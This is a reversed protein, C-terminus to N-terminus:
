SATEMDDDYFAWRPLSLPQIAHNTSWDGTETCRQFIRLARANLDRGREVAMYDLEYVAVEYPESSTVTVFLLSRLPHGLDAAVDAYWAHQQHYGYTAASKAFAARNRASTTKLDVGLDDHLMDFRCRRLVGTELDPAYASVEAAGGTLLARAEPHKMVAAGMAWVQEAREQTVPILGNALAENRAAKHAEQDAKARSTPPIVAMRQGAGLVETHVLTGLLTADTPEAPHDLRHRFLAPSELLTKAGSQSLSDRDAHYEAEPINAHFGPARM